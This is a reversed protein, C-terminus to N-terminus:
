LGTATAARKRQPVGKPHCDACKVFHINHRSEASLFTTDMKEVDLGCNSWRPHCTSCSARSQQGHKEHCALCSLGEHVGKGTRDDASGVEFGALPAHCQYCLSQRRDPSMKVPSNGERMVPLPMDAISYHERGRRDYFALSPRAIEQKVAPPPTREVRRGLPQGERHIQHCALCPIAPTDALEPMRLKWPGQTNVPELMASIDSEFHMGHCRLCDDVLLRQRNHKQDLFINAYTVAHPGAQWAAYEQRHCSHCRQSIAEADKWSRVKLQGPVDGGLHTFLRKLNGAHFGVDLTLPGGHCSSCSVNRHTSSAWKEYAPRVEHCRACSSGGTAEYLLSAGPLALLALVIVMIVLLTPKSQLMKKM